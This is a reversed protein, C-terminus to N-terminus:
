LIAQFCPLPLCLATSLQLSRDMWGDMSPLQGGDSGAFGPRSCMCITEYSGKKPGQHIGAPNSVGGSSGQIRGRSEM